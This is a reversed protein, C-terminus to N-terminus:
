LASCRVAATSLVSQSFMLKLAVGCFCMIQTNLVSKPGPHRSGHELSVGGQARCFPLHQLLQSESKVLCFVIAIEIQSVNIVRYEDRGTVHYRNM